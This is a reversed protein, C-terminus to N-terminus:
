NQTRPYEPSHGTMRVFVDELNARRTTLSEYALNSQELWALLAPITESPQSASLFCHPGDRWVRIVGPLKQWEREPPIDAGQEALQVALLQEGVLSSVLEDPAGLAVARGHDLIAVRNCLQAAEEMYHTTLLITCGLKRSDLIIDWLQRRSRPDLGSTPEDLLMLRPQSILATAIALRQKQGGSLNKIWTAVKDQLSVRAVADQPSIGKSHFSRFLRLVEFVSLKEPFRTEQLSVGLEKRIAYESETWRMGFIEINGSTPAHLGALLGITTSKGAGNSGLLGFCDGEQVELSLGRLANTKHQGTYTKTVDFCRIAPPL